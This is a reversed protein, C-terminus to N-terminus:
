AVTRACIVTPHLRARRSIEPLAKEASRLFDDLQGLQLSHVLRRPLASDSRPRETSSRVLSRSAEARAIISSSPMTRRM